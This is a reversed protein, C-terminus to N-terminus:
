RSAKPHLKKAALQLEQLLSDYDIGAAGRKAIFV